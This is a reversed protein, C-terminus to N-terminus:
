DDREIFGGGLVQPGDYFVAAQGPAVASQPEEFMVVVRGPSVLAIRAPAARHRSRIQVQVPRSHGADFERALAIDLFHLNSVHCTARRLDAACGLVVENREPVIRVVHRRPGGGLGLGKRQGVTFAHFGSHSGLNRGDLDVFKGRGPLREAAHSEIFSVYGEPPVFCVEQSEPKDSVPLGHERAIRRVEPKRLGGVPLLLRDLVDRGISFLFYSQDKAADAARLLRARGDPGREVRAYHGTAIWRAGLEAAQQLLWPFKVRQNCAICPSPTRGSLYESIFPAVVDEHFAKTADLTHHPIGLRECVAQADRRDATTCCGHAGESPCRYLRLSLGVVRFGAEVLLVAAVSSDVGGSMAVVVKAGRDM